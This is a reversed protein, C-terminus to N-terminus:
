GLKTRTKTMARTRVSAVKRTKVMTVAMALDLGLWYVYGLRFVARAGIHAM